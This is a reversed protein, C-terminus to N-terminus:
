EKVKAGTTTSVRATTLNMSRIMSHVYDSAVELTIQSGYHHIHRGLFRCSLGPSLWGVDKLLLEGKILDVMYQVAAQDSGTILLDDVYAILFIDSQNAVFLSPDSKCRQLGIQAFVAVM